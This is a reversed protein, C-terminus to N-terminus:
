TLMFLFALVCSRRRRGVHRISLAMYAVAVVVVNAYTQGTGYIDSILRRKMCLEKEVEAVGVLVWTRGCASQVLQLMHTYTYM